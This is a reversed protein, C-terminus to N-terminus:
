KKRGEVIVPVIWPTHVLAGFLYSAGKLIIRNTFSIGIGNKVANKYQKEFYQSLGGFVRKKDITQIQVNKYGLAEMNKQYQEVTVLNRLPIRLLSCCAKSLMKNYESSKKLKSDIAIDYLGIMGQRKLHNYANKLFDWRTNYHYASDISIIYDYM